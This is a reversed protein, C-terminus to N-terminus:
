LPIFSELPIDGGNYWGALKNSIQRQMIALSSFTSVSNGVFYSARLALEYDVAAGLERPLDADAGAGLIEHRVVINFRARLADLLETPTFSSTDVAVYVPVRDGTAASVGLGM